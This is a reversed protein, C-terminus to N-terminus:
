MYNILLLLTASINWIEHNQSFFCCQVYINTLYIFIYRQDRKLKAREMCKCTNPYCIHDGVM